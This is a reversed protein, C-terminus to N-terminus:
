MWTLNIKSNRNDTLKQLVACFIFNKMLSKKLLHSSVRLKGRIQECRSFFDKISFKMQQATYNIKTYWNRVLAKASASIFVFMDSVSTNTSGLPWSISFSFIKKLPNM